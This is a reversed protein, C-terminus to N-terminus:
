LTSCTAPGAPPLGCAHHPPRPPSRLFFMGATYVFFARGPPGAVLRNLWWTGVCIAGVLFLTSALEIIEPKWFARGPQSAGCFPCRRAASKITEACLYCVKTGVSTENPPM